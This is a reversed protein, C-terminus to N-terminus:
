KKIKGAYLQLTFMGINALRLHLKGRLSTHVGVPRISGGRNLDGTYSNGRSESVESSMIDLEYTVQVAERGQRCLHQLLHSLNMITVKGTEIIHSM